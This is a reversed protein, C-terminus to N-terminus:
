LYLLGLEAECVCVCVGIPTLGDQSHDGPQAGPSDMEVDVTPSSMESGPAAQPSLSPRPAPQLYREFDLQPVGQQLFYSFLSDYHHTTDHIGHIQPRM